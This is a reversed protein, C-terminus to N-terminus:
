PMYVKANANYINTEKQKKTQLLLTLLASSSVLYMEVTSM